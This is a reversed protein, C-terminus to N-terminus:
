LNLLTVKSVTVCAVNVSKRDMRDRKQRPKQGAQSCRRSPKQGEQSDILNLLATRCVQNVSCINGSIHIFRFTVLTSNRKLRKQTSKWICLERRISGGYEPRLLQPALFVRESLGSQIGVHLAPGTPLPERRLSGRWESM